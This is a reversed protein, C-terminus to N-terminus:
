RLPPETGSPPPTTTPPKQQDAEQLKKLRAEARAIADREDQIQSQLQERRKAVEALEGAQAKRLETQLAAIRAERAGLETRLRAEERQLEAVQSRLVTGSAIDHLNASYGLSVNLKAYNYATYLPGKTPSEGGEELETGYVGLSLGRWSGVIGANWDWGNNEALIDIRTNRSPHFAYRGGVFLGRAITGKDNYAKGLKGDDRFLGSGYGISLSATATENIAFSKTAVGYFSPATQFHQAYSATVTRINGSSDIAVDHGILLRDEHHYEGLNRFGVAIAPWKRDAREKLLLAQGFLGWEPNQSYLSLGVSFRGKWHTDIALNTNWLSSFNLPQQAPTNAPIKTASAQVWIDGSSPSVWAVPIDILGTGFQRTAPYLDDSPQQQASLAPVAILAAGLTVAFLAVGSRLTRM